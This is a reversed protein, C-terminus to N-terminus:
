KVAAIVVGFPEVKMGKLPMPVAPSGPAALLPRAEAEVIGLGALDFSLIRPQGSMNLVVLISDGAGPNKKRLYSLERFYSLQGV